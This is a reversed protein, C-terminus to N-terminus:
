WAKPGKRRASGGYGRGVQVDLIEGITGLISRSQEGVTFTSVCAPPNDYHSYQYTNSPRTITWTIQRDTAVVANVVCTPTAGLSPVIRILVNMARGGHLLPRDVLVQRPDDGFKIGSALLGGNFVFVDAIGEYANMVMFGPGDKPAIESHTPTVTIQSPHSACATFSTAFVLLVVAFSLKKFIHM